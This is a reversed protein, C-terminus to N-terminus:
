KELGNESQRVRYARDGLRQYDDVLGEATNVTLIPRGPQLPATERTRELYIIDYM